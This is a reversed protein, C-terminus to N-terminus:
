GVSLVPRPMSFRVNTVRECSHRKEGHCTRMIADESQSETEGPLSPSRNRRNESRRKSRSSGSTVIFVCLCVSTYVYVCSVCQSHVFVCKRKM